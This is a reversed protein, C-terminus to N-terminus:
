RLSDVPQFVLGYVDPLHHPRSVSPPLLVVPTALPATGALLYFVFVITTFGLALATRRKQSPAEGVDLM